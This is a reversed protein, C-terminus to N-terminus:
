NTMKVMGFPYDLILKGNELSYYLTTDPFAGQTDYVLKISHDEGVTYYGAWLGDELFTGKDSFQFSWENDRIWAGILTDKDEGKYFDYTLKQYLYRKSETDYYRMETVTGDEATLKLTTDTWEYSKYKTLKTGATFRAERFAATGDEYLKLCPTKDDEMYAWQETVSGREEEPDDTTCAALMLVLTLACLLFLM